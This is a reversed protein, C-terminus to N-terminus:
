SNVWGEALIIASSNATINISVIKWNNSILTNVYESIEAVTGNIFFCKQTPNM